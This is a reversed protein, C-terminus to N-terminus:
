DLPTEAPQNIVNGLAAVITNHNCPKQLFFKAGQQLAKQQDRISASLMIIPIDKTDPHEGLRDMARIGDMGLIYNDVLIANPHHEIASSIAANGDKATLVDYGAAHLRLRLGSLLQRDDHVVLVSPAVPKPKMSALESRFRRFFDDADAPFEWSGAPLFRIEPLRTGSPGRNAQAWADSVRALMADVEREHAQAMILWKNPLVRIVLDSPRFVHHLFQDALDSNRGTVPLSTEATVLALHPKSWLGCAHRAYRAALGSADNVPVTFSFTSGAGLTSQVDIKGLNLAVLEKVVALGLGFGHSIGQAASEMKGSRDFIRTLDEPAIGPGDDTVGVLVDCSDTGLEAWLRVSGGEPCLDIANTALALIVRGIKERDCYVPPLDAALSTEFSVNRMAARRELTPCVQDTIERITSHRRWVSLLGAELRSADLMNEVMSAMDGVRDNVIELFERQRPNLEGASGDRVLTVFEKVVALPTRFERSVHDLLQNTTDYIRALQRSKRDLLQNAATLERNKRELLSDNEPGPHSVNDEDLRARVSTKAM